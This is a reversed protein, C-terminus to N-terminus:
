GALCPTEATRRSGPHSPSWALAATACPSAPPASVGAPHLSCPFPQAHGPQGRGQASRAAASCGGFGLPLRRAGRRQGRDREPARAASGM